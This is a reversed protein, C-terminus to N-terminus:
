GVREWGLTGDALVTTRIGRGDEPARTLRDRRAADKAARDARLEDRTAETVVAVTGRRRAADWSEHFRVVGAYDRSAHTYTRNTRRIVGHATLYTM